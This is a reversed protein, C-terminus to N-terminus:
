RSLPILLVARHKGLSYLGACPACLDGLFGRARHLTERLNALRPPMHGLITLVRQFSIFDPRRWCPMLASDFGGGPPFNGGGFFHRRGSEPLVSRLCEPLDQRSDLGGKVVPPHTPLLLLLLDTLLGEEARYRRTAPQRLVERATTLPLCSLPTLLLMLFGVGRHIRLVEIFDNALIYRAGRPARNKRRIRSGRAAVVEFDSDLRALGLNSSRQPEQDRGRALFLLRLYNYSHLIELFLVSRHKRSDVRAADLRGKTLM